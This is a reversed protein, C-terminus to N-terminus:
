CCKKRHLVPRRPQYHFPTQDKLHINVEYHMEPIEPKSAEVYYERYLKQLRCKSEHPIKGVNLEVLDDQNHEILLLEEFVSEASDSEQKKLIVAGAKVFSIDLGNIFDRGLLCDIAMTKDDVLYFLHEKNINYDVLSVRVRVVYQINLVTGNIGSIFFKDDFDQRDIDDIMYGKILSIPSGSDIIASIPIIKNSLRISLNVHYAPELLMVERSSEGQIEKQKQGTVLGSKIKQKRDPCTSQLHDTPGCSYCAGKPRRPIPCNPAIHTKSGCNFCMRIFKSGVKAMSVEDAGGSEPKSVSKSTSEGYVHKAPVKFQFRASRNDVVRIFNLIDVLLADENIHSRTMLYHFLDKSQVGLGDLLQEKTDEIVLDLDRCMRVKEHYYDLIDENRGQVRAALVKWRSGINLNRVFTSKFQEEFDSWSSFNRSSFWQYAPGELNVRVAELKATESWRNIKAVGSLAKLWDAAEHPKGKGNFVSLSKSFDHSFYVEEKRANTTLMSMLMENQRLLTQLILDNSSAKDDNTSKKSMNNATNGVVINNVDESSCKVTDVSAEHESGGDM